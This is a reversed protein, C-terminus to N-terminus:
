ESKYITELKKAEVTIDYGANRLTELNNSRGKELAKNIASIWESIDLYKEKNVFIVSDTIAVEQPVQGSCVSPLGNAQSEIIVNGLGEYRSPFVFVDMANILDHVDNREGLLLVNKEIGLEKIKKKISERLEGDGILMLFANPCEKLYNYFIDILLDHNKQVTFRGVHGFVIANEELSFLRRIRDRREETYMFKELETANNLIIVKNQLIAKKGYLWEGALLSCAMFHTATNKIIKSNIIRVLKQHLKEPSFALHSHIIRKKVNYHKSLLMAIAGRYDQRCHVVHYNGNKIITAIQRINKIPNKSRPTVHYIKSGYSEFWEELEGIKDGHVIFDIKFENTNMHSYYNKFINQVGGGKELSSFIQLIRIM